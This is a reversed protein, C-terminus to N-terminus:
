FNTNADLVTAVFPKLDGSLLKYYRGREDSISRSTAALVIVAM